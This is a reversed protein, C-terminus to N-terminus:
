IYSKLFLFRERQFLEEKFSTEKLGEKWRRTVQMKRREKSNEKKNDKWNEKKKIEKGGREISEKKRMSIFLRIAWVSAREHSSGEDWISNRVELGVESSHRGKSLRTIDWFAWLLWYTKAVREFAQSNEIGKEKATKPGFLNRKLINLCFCKALIWFCTVQFTLPEKIMRCSQCGCAVKPYSRRLLAGKQVWTWPRGKILMVVLIAIEMPFPKPFRTLTSSSLQAFGVKLIKRLSRTSISTSLGRFGPKVKWQSPPSDRQIKKFYSCRSM